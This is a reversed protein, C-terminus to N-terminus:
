MYPIPIASRSNAGSHSIQQTSKAMFPELVGQTETSAAFKTPNLFCANWSTGFLEEHMHSTLFEIEILINSKM